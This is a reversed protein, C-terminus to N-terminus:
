PKRHTPSASLRREAEAASSAEAGTGIILAIELLVVFSQILISGFGVITWFESRETWAILLLLLTSSLHLMIM